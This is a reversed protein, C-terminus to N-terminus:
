CWTNSKEDFKVNDSNGEITFGEIMIYDAGQIIIGNWSNHEIKPKHGPYAKFTIWANSTGSTKILVCFGEHTNKYLGNMVLVTDGPKVLDAAKQITLFATNTSLGDNGDKGTGSVYYAKGEIEAAILLLILVIILKFGQKNFM